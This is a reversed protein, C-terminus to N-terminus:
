LTQQGRIEDEVDVDQEENTGGEVDRINYCTLSDPTDTTDTANIEAGDKSVPTCFVQANGVHTISEPAFEDALTVEVGEFGSTGKPGRFHGGKPGKVDYCKFDSLEAQPAAAEPGFAIADLGAVTPGIIHVEGSTTIVLALYNESVGGILKDNLSAVLLGTGPVFDMANIRPKELVLSSFVTEILSEEEGTGPNYTRLNGRFFQGTILVSGAHFLDGSSSFAFGNGVEGLPLIPNVKAEGTLLNITGLGDPNSFASSLFYGFLVGDSNRFSIDTATKLGLSEIGTPWVEEGVGTDPDITVLVHTDSGDSRECTAFLTGSADFDMGSCREFGTVPGVETATGSSTDITYLTSGGPNGQEALGFLTQAQAAKKGVGLSIALTVLLTVGVLKVFNLNLNEM